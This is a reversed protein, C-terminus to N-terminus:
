KSKIVLISAGEMARILKISPDGMVFEEAKSMRKRGIIVMDFDNKHYHDIIGDAVTPYPDTILKVQINDSNFGTAILNDRAKELVSMMRKPQESSFKKGMLDESASPKRLFHVLHLVCEDTRLPLISLTDIVARSSISDDLAVLIVQNQRKM